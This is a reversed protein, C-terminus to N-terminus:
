PSIMSSIAVISEMYTESEILHGKYFSEEEKEHRNPCIIQEKYAEVMLLSECLTGSGKRLVEDPPMPIITTLSFIFPHIFKKYLFWTAYADSVSYGALQQPQKEAMEVMKEPDVEIPDYGLKEKSVAKLGQSGQPLYSDRKVWMYCDMHVGYPPAYVDDVNKTVGTLEALSLDHLRCRTEIFPWDFFDGNYTVYLLPKEQRLHNLFRLLLSREDKENFVLFEDVKFEEKPQYVFDEVDEGVYERNTILFGQGDLMYSIMIVSDKRADPFMLPSKSTEIDFAITKMPPIKIIDQRALPQTTNSPDLLYWIGCRLDNDIATRIHYKVDFERLELIKEFSELYNSKRRNKESPILGLLEKRVKLLDSVNLFELKIYNYWINNLHNPITLDKRKVVHIGHIEESFKKRIWSEVEDEANEQVQVYFYPSYKYTYKFTDGDRGLFYLELSQLPDPTDPDVL